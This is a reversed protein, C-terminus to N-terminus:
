WLAPIVREHLWALLVAGQAEDHRALRLAGSENKMIGVVSVYLDSPDARSMWRVFSPDARNGKRMESIVNTDLLFM